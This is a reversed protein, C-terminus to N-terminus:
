FNTLQKRGIVGDEQAVLELGAIQFIEALTKNPMQKLWGEHFRNAALLLGGPNLRAALSKVVAGVGVSDPLFPGGLIGNCLILHYGEEKEVPLRLLDEQYFKIKSGAGIALLQSVFRTTTEELDTDHPYYCHAAAVLELPELTTGHVDLEDPAFGSDLLLKMLGYTGTGNGCAADLCRFNVGGSRSQRLWDQLWDQLFLQQCNYRYFGGGHYRPVLLAFLFTRRFDQDFQLKQLLEAPNANTVFPQLRVVLDLWTTAALIVLSAPAPRYSLTVALLRQLGRQIESVPLLLETYSRMRNDICLGPAWLGFPYCALYEAYRKRLREIRSTLDLDKLVGGAMMSALLYERVEPCLTPQLHM